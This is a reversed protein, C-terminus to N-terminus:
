VLRERATPPEAVRTAVTEGPLADFLFTAHSELLVPTAVTLLPVTLATAAPEAVIVTVVTSPPLVAVQETVTVLPLLPLGLGPGLPSLVKVLMAAISAHNFVWGTKLLCVTLNITLLRPPSLSVGPLAPYTSAWLSLSTLRSREPLVMVLMPLLAKLSQMLRVPTVMGSLTVLMPSEAKQHAPMVLTIMGFLTILM